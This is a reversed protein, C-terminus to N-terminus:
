ANQECHAGRRESTGGLERLGAIEQVAYCGDDVLADNQLALVVLLHGQDALAGLLLVQRQRRGSHELLLYQFAQDQGLDLQLAGVADPQANRVCHQIVRNPSNGFLVALAEFVHRRQERRVADLVRFKTARQALFDRDFLQPADLDALIDVDGIAFDFLTNGVEFAVHDDIGLIRQRMDPQGERLRGAGVLNTFDLLQRVVDVLLELLAGIEALERYAVRGAVGRELASREAPHFAVLYGRQEDVDQLVHLGAVNGFRQAGGATEM